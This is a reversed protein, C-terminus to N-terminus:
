SVDVVTAPLFFYKLAVDKRLLRANCIASPYGKQRGSIRMERMSMDKQRGSIRMDRGSIPMKARFVDKKPGIVSFIRWSICSIFTIEHSIFKMEDIDQLLKSRVPAFEVIRVPLKDTNHSNEVIIFKMEDMDQLLKSRVPASVSIRVPSKDAPPSNEFIIATATITAIYPCPM